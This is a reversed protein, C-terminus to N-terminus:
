LLYPLMVRTCCILEYSSYHTTPPSISMFHTIGSHTEKNSLVYIM